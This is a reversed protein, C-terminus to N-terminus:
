LLSMPSLTSLKELECSSSNLGQSCHLLSYMIDVNKSLEVTEALKGAIVNHLNSMNPLRSTVEM